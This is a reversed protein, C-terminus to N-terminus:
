QDALISSMEKHGGPKNRVPHSANMEKRISSKYGVFHEQMGFPNYGILENRGPNRSGILSNRGPIIV